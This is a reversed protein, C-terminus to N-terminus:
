LDNGTVNNYNAGNAVCICYSSRGTNKITCGQIICNSASNLFIGYTEDKTNQINLSSISSGSADKLLTIMSNKLSNTSTGVINVKKSFIFNKDSFSGDLNITDGDKVNSSVLNGKSDFYQNYNSDTITFSSASIQSDSEDMKLIENSNDDLEEDISVEELTDIAAENSIIDTSNKDEIASVASISILLLLLVLLINIKKFMNYRM